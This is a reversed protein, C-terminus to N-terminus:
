WIKTNVYNYRTGDIQSYNKIGNFTKTKPLEIM